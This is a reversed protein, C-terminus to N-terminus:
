RAAEYAEKVAAPIRGRAPVDHGNDRAWARVAAADGGTATGSKARTRKRAGSVRHGADVYPELAKRLSSANKANLDIQYNVGDIGFEITEEAESGDIDDILIVQVKKAM